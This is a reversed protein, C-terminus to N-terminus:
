SRLRSRRKQAEGEGSLRFRKGRRTLRLDGKPNSLSMMTDGQLVSTHSDSALSPIPNTNPTHPGAFAADEKEVSEAPETTPHDSAKRVCKV